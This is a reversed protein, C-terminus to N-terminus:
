SGKQQIKQLSKYLQYPTLVWFKNLGILRKITEVCSVPFPCLIKHPVNIKPVKVVHYGQEIFYRPFNFHHPHPLIDIDMKNSKPDVLIWRNDQQSIMFCHRFGNKLLRLPKIDTNNTFIIWQSQTNDVHNEPTLAPREIM